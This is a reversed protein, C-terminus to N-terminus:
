RSSRLTTRALANNSTVCIADSQLVHEPRSHGASEEMRRIRSPRLCCHHPLDRSTPHGIGQMEDFGAFDPTPIALFTMPLKLFQTGKPDV